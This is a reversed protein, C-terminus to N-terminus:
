SYKVDYENDAEDEKTYIGVVGGKIYKRYYLM